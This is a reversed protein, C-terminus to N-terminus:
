PAGITLSITRSLMTAEVEPDTTSVVCYAVKDQVPSRSM